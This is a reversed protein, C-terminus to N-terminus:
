YSTSAGLQMKWHDQFGRLLGEMVSEPHMAKILSHIGTNFFKRAEDSGPELSVITSELASIDEPSSQPQRRPTVAPVQISPGPPAIPTIPTIPAIPAITNLPAGQPQIEPATSRSSSTLPPLSAPLSSSLIAPRESDPKELLDSYLWSFPLNDTILCYKHHM